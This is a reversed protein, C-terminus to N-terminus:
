LNKAVWKFFDTSSKIEDPLKIPFLPKAYTRVLEDFQAISWGYNANACDACCLDISIENETGDKYVVPLDM